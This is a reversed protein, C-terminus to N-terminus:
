GIAALAIELTAHIPVLTDIGAGTLVATVHADPALLAIKAQRSGVAKAAMVISRIGMSSLFAVQAMDIIISRGSGSLASLRLDIEAAGAVDWKGIAVARAAADSLHEIQLDM